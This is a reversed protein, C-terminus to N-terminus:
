APGTTRRASATYSDARFVVAALDHPLLEEAAARMSVDRTLVFGREALYDPLEDPIWGFKFPEGVRHVMAAVARTALSPKDYRSKAFYTM